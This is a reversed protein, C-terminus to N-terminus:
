SASTQRLGPAEGSSVPGLRSGVPQMDRIAERVREALIAVNPEHFMSAHDGPVEFSDLHQVLSNWDPAHDWFRDAPRLEPQLFLMRGSFAAPRYSLSALFLIEELLQEEVASERANEYAQKWRRYQMVLKLTELRGRLYASRDGRPMEWLRALHFLERRLRLRLRDSSSLGTGHTPLPTDVLVVLSGPRGKLELQRATEYALLGQLCWGGIIYPGSPEVELIRDAMCCAVDEMRYPPAFKALSDDPLTAFVIGPEDKLEKALPNFIAGGGLWMMSNRRCENAHFPVFHPAPTGRITAALQAVTPARFISTISLRRGFTREVQSVISAALLSHGGLDFFNEHIGIRDLGLTRGWIEALKREVDNTPQEASVLTEKSRAESEDPNSVFYTAPDFNNADRIVQEVGEPSVIIQTLGSSLAREFAKLAEATGIAKKLVDEKWGEAGVVEEMEALRGVEKWVPWNISVTHFSNSSNAFADLFANAASYDCHAFPTTISSISSFLAVFDLERIKMKKLLDALILTGQVKPALVREAIEKTTASVLGARLVGAAHIVGHITGFRKLTFDLAAKTQARDSAEASIVEVEAGRDEIELIRGLKKQLSPALKGGHRLSRWQSKEPFPSRQTLVIKAKYIEALYKALALGLGGTGGTILYVGGRRLRGTNEKSGSDGTLRSQRYGRQWRYKGRYAVLGGRTAGAFESCIANLLDFNIQDIQYNEPLDVNFCNINSFEKPIVGCPGLVTAITPDLNEEGTVQHLQSSVIGITVPVTINLEAVAQSLYLLSYFGLKESTGDLQGISRLTGFHVINLRQPSREQLKRLLRVYDQPVDPNIEFAGDRQQSFRTGFQVFTTPLRLSELQAKVGAGEGEGTSFIVWHANELTGSGEGILGTREWTPTYFWDDLNSSSREREHSAPPATEVSHWYVKREFPYTPLSVRRRGGTHVKQWVIRTGSLWLKGISQWLVELDSRNEYSHRLSSVTVPDSANKQGPHQAALVSLTRGPGAEVLVADKMQWLRQLADNFRAPRNAHNAWYAPNTAEGPKIWNGTVNSTFPITPESLQVKRVENEFEGVIPDLMRSHFAHGNQVHRCLVGRSQLEAELQEIQETPGAVVCLKPGNILSISIESSLLPQTEEESLMVALMRGQPLQDVLQARTAVLRLADDLSFVGALCAAVYEGMSHGVIADPLVGFSAWLKALAYEITFLAPQVFRTRDLEGFEPNTSESTGRGLLKKLDIGKSSSQRKWGKGEPYLIARIDVGLHATLLHACRDVGTRFVEFEEYLEHAMGLYHDGVGPLLLV